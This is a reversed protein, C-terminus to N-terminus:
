TSEPQQRAAFNQAGEAMTRGFEQAQRAYTQLQEQAYRNQLAMLQSLDKAAALEGALAFAADGNQKAFRITLDQIQKFGPDISPSSMWAKMAEAITDLYQGYATRAQEINREVLERLQQVMEDGQAM